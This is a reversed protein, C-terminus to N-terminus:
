CLYNREGRDCELRCNPLCNNMVHSVFAVFLESDLIRSFALMCVRGNGFERLDEHVPCSGSRRDTGVSNISTTLRVSGIDCNYGVIILVILPTFTVDRKVNLSRAHERADEASFEHRRLCSVGGHYPPQHYIPANPSPAARRSPSRELSCGGSPRADRRHEVVVLLALIVRVGSGASGPFTDCRSCM